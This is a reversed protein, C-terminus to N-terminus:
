QEYPWLKSYMHLHNECASILVVAELVNKLDAKEKDAEAKNQQCHM